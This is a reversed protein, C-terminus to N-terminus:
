FPQRTIQKSGPSGNLVYSMVGASSSSFEFTISGVERAVVRAPDFANGFPPGSTEYLTGSCASGVVRCSSAVYWKPNGSTDYTYWAVFAIGSAHQTFSVGWGSESPNWWLDSYNAAPAPYVTCNVVLGSACIQQANSSSATYVRLDQADRLNGAFFSYGLSSCTRSASYTTWVGPQSQLLGNAVEVPVNEVCVGSTAVVTVTSAPTGFTRQASFVLSDTVCYNGNSSCASSNYESLVLVMWYTGDPPYQMSTTKTVSSYYTRPALPSLTTSAALRYGNFGEGRSPHSQTAWLELRLTGSTRSYSDNNIRAITLTASSGAYSYGGSGEMYLGNALTKGESAVIDNVDNGFISTRVAHSLSQLTEDSTFQRERSYGDASFLFAGLLLTLLFVNMGRHFYTRFSM